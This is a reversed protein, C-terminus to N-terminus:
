FRASLTLLVLISVSRCQVVGLMEPYPDLETAGGTPLFDQIAVLTASVELSAM